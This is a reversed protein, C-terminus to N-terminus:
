REPLPLSLDESAPIPRWRTGLKASLRIMRERVREALEGTAPAPHPDPERQNVAPHFVAARLSSDPRAAGDPAVQWRTRLVGTLRPALDTYEFLFNGLSYAILGDGHQEIAQLVHSHHGIVMDVGGEILAHAVRQQFINPASLYEDGWHVVVIILDHDARAREIIPLLMDPMEHLQIFPV